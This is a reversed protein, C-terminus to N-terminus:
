RDQKRYVKAGCHSSFFLNDLFNDSNESVPQAPLASFLAELAKKVKETEM